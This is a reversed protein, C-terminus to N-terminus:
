QVRSGGNVDVTSGTIYGADRSVLFAATAAIEEPTGIRGLPVISKFQEVRRADNTRTLAPTDIPGPAIANCTIQLRAGEMAATKMLGLIAAKFSAYGVGTPGGGRQAAASSTLVIRGNEVPRAKRCRLYERVCLFASRSNFAELAIWEDLSTDIISPHHDPTHFTGGVFCLLATVPGLEKEVRAFMGIVAAEDRADCELALHGPGLAGIVEEAGARVIDAGAVIWGEAALRRATARGLGSAVGTVLAIAKKNGGTM